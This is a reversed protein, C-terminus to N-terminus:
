FHEKIFQITKNISDSAASQNYELHAGNYSIPSRLHDFAHYAGPYVISKVPHSGSSAKGMSECLKSPTWDDSDGLLLLIDTTFTPPYNQWSFCPPYYAVISKFRREEEEPLFFRNSSDAANLAAGAGHSWGILAIRKPDVFPLGQLYILAGYADQARTLGDLKNPNKCVADDLISRPGFSDVILAIYGQKVLQKAMTHDSINSGACGPLLVVAPYSGQGEPKYLDGNVKQVKYTDSSRYSEFRVSNACGSILFAMVILLLTYGMIKKNKQSM